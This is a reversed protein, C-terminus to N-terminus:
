NEYDGQEILKFGCNVVFQQYFSNTQSHNQYLEKCDDPVVLYKTKSAPVDKGTDAHVSGYMLGTKGKCIVTHLNVTRNFANNGTGKDADGNHEFILKVLNRNDSAGYRPLTADPGITLTLEAKQATTDKSDWRFTGTDASVNYAESSVNFYAQALQYCCRFVDKGLSTISNELRVSKIGSFKFAYDGFRTINSLDASELASCEMFANASVANVNSPFKISKLQVNGQFYAPFEESKLVAASMDVDVLGSQAAVANALDVIDKATLTGEPKNGVYIKSFSAPITEVWNQGDTSYLASPEAEGKEKLIFKGSDLLNQINPNANFADYMGYPCIISGEGTSINKAFDSGPTKENASPPGAKFEIRKLNYARILWNNGGLEVGECEFILETLRGNTDFMYDALATVAPGITVTMPNAASNWEDAGNDRCGLVRQTTVPVNYYVHEAYKLHFFARNGISTVSSPVNVDKLGCYHFAYDGISTIGTLDISELSDCYQFANNAIGTINKPLKITKLYTVPADLSTSNFLAPFTQSMYTAQSMDLEVPQKQAQMASKIMYLEGITLKNEGETKVYLKSFTSPLTDFWYTGDASYKVQSQNGESGAERIMYKGTGLFYQVAINDAFEALKGAPCIVSGEYESLKKAFDSGTGESEASPIGGKFEIREINYARIAWQSIFKLNDGEIILETLRANTDFCYEPIETVAPGITVTLPNTRDNWEATNNRNAMPSRYPTKDALSAWDIAPNYYISKVYRLDGFAERGVLKVNSPVNLSKLGSYRFANRGIESVTSLDTSELAKCYMFAGDAIKTINSPFKISKLKEDPNPDSEGAFIAPFEVNEYVAQSLDLDAAKSQKQVADRIDLLMDARIGGKVVLSQFKSPLSMVWEGGDASYYTKEPSVATSMDLAVKRVSGRELNVSIGNLPVYYFWKDTYVTLEAGEPFTVEENPLLAMFIKVGNDQNKDAITAGEQLTVTVTSKESSSVADSSTEFTDTDKMYYQVGALGAMKPALVISKLVEDNDMNAHKGYVNFRIVASAWEFKKDDLLYEGGYEFGNNPHDKTYDPRFSSFLTINEGHLVNDKKQIQQFDGNSDRKGGVMMGLSSIREGEREFVRYHHEANYPYIAGHIDDRNFSGLDVTGEFVGPEVASLRGALSNNEPRVGRSSDDGILLAVSDQGEWVLQADDGFTVKTAPQFDAKLTVHVKNEPAPKGVPEVNEQVCSCLALLFLPLTYKKM